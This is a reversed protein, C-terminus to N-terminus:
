SVQLGPVAVDVWGGRVSARGGGLELDEVAAELRHAAIALIRERLVAATEAVAGATM